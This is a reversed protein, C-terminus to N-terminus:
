AMAEDDESDSSVAPSEDEINYPIPSDSAFAQAQINFLNAYEGNRAMLEWHNGLEEIHGDKMCVILDAHKTLHGFRHTVFIMTKGDKAKLLESFLNLEGAADIASTPEDVLCLRIRGSSFRMFTRAAVIRQAEGGSMKAKDRMSKQLMNLPDRRDSSMNVSYTETFKELTTDLGNELKDLYRRAGGKISADQIAALDDVAEVNGLGINEKMSLPYVSHDQTLMSTARRLDGIYYDTMRHGDVLIEGSSPDFIRSFLKMLTSKGSGNEGVVVVVTGPKINLTIGQLADKKTKTGPYQFSVNRFQIAMGKSNHELPPYPVFAQEPTDNSPADLFEYTESILAFKHRLDNADRLLSEVSWRITTASQQLIAVTTISMTAPKLVAMVGFFVIPMESLLGTTISHFPTNRREYLDCVDDTPVGGLETSAASYESLLYGKLNGSIIDSKFQDAALNTLAMIRLYAPHTTTVCHAIDWISRTTIAEFVPKAICALAFFFGGETRSSHVVLAVQSATEVLTMLYSIIVTFCYPLRDATIRDKSAEEGILLDDRLRADMLRIEFHTQIQQTLTPYLQGSWWVLAEVFAVFALRMLISTLLRSTDLPDDSQLKASVTTLFQSTLYLLVTKQLGSWLRVLLYLTVLRPNTRSVDLLFRYVSPLKGLFDEFNPLISTKTEKKMWLRRVGLQISKLEKEYDAPGTTEHKEGKSINPSSM